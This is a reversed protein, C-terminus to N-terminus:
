LDFNQLFEDFDCISVLQKTTLFAYFHIIKIALAKYNLVLNRMGLNALYNNNLDFTTSNKFIL